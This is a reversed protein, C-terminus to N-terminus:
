IEYRVGKTGGPLGDISGSYGHDYWKFPPFYVSGGNLAVQPPDAVDFGYPPDVVKM